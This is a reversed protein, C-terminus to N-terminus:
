GAHARDHVPPRTVREVLKQEDLGLFFAQLQEGHIPWEHAM